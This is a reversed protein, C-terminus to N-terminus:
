AELLVYEALAHAAVYAKWVASLRGAVKVFLLLFFDPELMHVLLLSLGTDVTKTCILQVNSYYLRCFTCAHYNWLGNSGQHSM